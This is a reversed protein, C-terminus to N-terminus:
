NGGASLAESDFRIDYTSANRVIKSFISIQACFLRFIFIYM